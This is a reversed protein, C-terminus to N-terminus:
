AVLDTQVDAPDAALAALVDGAHRKADATLSDASEVADAYARIFADRAVDRAVRAMDRKTVASELSDADAVDLKAQAKDLKAAASNLAAGARYVRAILPAVGDMSALMHFTGDASERWAGAFRLVSAVDGSVVAGMYRGPTMPLPMILRGDGDKEFASEGDRVYLTNFARRAKKWTKEDLWIPRRDYDAPKIALMHRDGSKVALDFGYITQDDRAADMTVLADNKALIMRATEKQQPTMHSAAIKQRKTRQRAEYHKRAREAASDIPATPTTPTTPADM